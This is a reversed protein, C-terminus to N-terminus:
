STPAEVDAAIVTDLDCRVPEAGIAGIKQNSSSSRSM